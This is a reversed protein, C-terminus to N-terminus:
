GAPYRTAALLHALHAANAALTATAAGTTDPKPGADHYDLTQMAEGVWYTSGAAPVTFGVDNLAQFVEAAVHHAGDENGVVAVVAVKGSMSPRGQDDTESLEADLRELIMKTISSPQGMWIPTAIVLIQAALVKSRISPWADGDGEDTSVGFRVDHDAVRVFEGDVDHDALAALVERGLLESSSPAPSSKLSCGLVLAKLTPM